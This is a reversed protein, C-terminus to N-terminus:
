KVSAQPKLWLAIAFVATGGILGFLLWRRYHYGKQRAILAAISGILCHLFSVILVLGWNISDNLIM